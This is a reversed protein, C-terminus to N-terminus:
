PRAAANMANEMAELAQQVPQASEMNKQMSESLSQMLAKQANITTLEAQTSGKQTEAISQAFAKSNDLQQKNKAASDNEALLEKTMLALQAAVQRKQAAAVPGTAQPNASKKLGDNLTSLAKIMLAQMQAHKDSVSQGASVVSAGATIFSQAAQEQQKAAQASAADKAATAQALALKALNTQTEIEASGNQQQLQAQLQAFQIMVASFTSMATASLYPNDAAHAVTASSGLLAVFIAASVAARFSSCRSQM